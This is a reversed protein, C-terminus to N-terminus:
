KGLVIAGNTGVVVNENGMKSEAVLTSNEIAVDDAEAVVAGNVGVVVNENGMESVAVITSNEIAVDEGKAVIAGNVGVVVNENGMESEAILTSNEVKVSSKGESSAMTEDASTTSEVAEAATAGLSKGGDEVSGLSEANVSSFLGITVLTLIVKKM